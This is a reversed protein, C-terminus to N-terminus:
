KKKKSCNKFTRKDSSVSETDYDEDDDDDALSPHVDSSSYTSRRRPCFTSVVGSVVNSSVVTEAVDIDDSEDDPRLKRLEDFPEVALSVNPAFSREYRCILVTM